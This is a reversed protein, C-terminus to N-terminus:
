YHGLADLLGNVGEASYATDIVVDFRYSRLVEEPHFRDAQILNVGKQNNETIETSFMCMTDKQWMTNRLTDASM